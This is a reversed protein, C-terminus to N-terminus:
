CAQGFDGLLQNLDSFGTEGDGDVDTAQEPGKEGYADLLLNLDAFNIM